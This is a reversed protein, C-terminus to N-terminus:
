QGPSEARTASDARAELTQLTRLNRLLAPDAPDLRRAVEFRRRAGALDGAQAALIGLHMHADLFAPDVAVARELDAVAAARAGAQVHRTARGALLRSLVVDPTHAPAALTRMRAVAAIAQDLDSLSANRLWADLSAPTRLSPDFPCGWRALLAAHRASRRAYVVANDAFFVVVWDRDERLRQRLGRDRQPATAYDVAAIGIDYRAVADDWGEGNAMLRQYADLFAPPFVDLRGDIYVETTPWLEHIFWGGFALVQFVHGQPEVQRLFRTAGDPRNTVDVGLGVRRPPDSGMPVGHTAAVAGGLCAAAIVAVSLGRGLHPRQALWGAHAALLAPVLVAFESVGRLTRLALAAFLLGPVLLSWQWRGRAAALTGVMAVATLGLAKLFFAGAYAPHFISRLEVIGGRVEPRTMLAFPYVLTRITHPNILCVGLLAGLWGLRSLWVNTLGTRRRDITEGVWFLAVLALGLVCGSHVNAWVLFLPLLAVRWRRGSAVAGRRLCWLTVGLGLATFMHPRVFARPAILPAALLVGLAAAPIRERGRRVLGAATAFGLAAVAILAKLLILADIGAVRDVLAFVVEALWEHTVWPQGHATYSFIDTTPVHHTALILAGTRLHWWVDFALEPFTCMVGALLLACVLATAGLRRPLLPAAPAASQPVHPAM